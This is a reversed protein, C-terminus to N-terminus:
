PGEAIATQIAGIHVPAFGWRDVGVNFQKGNITWRTHVHGHLLWAAGDDPFPNRDFREDHYPYHCLRLTTAEPFVNDLILEMAMSTRAFGAKDIYWNPKFGDHNGLVLTKEGHLLRAIEATRTRNHFSFDGLVYVLDDPAVCMNWREILATDMDEVSAFPRDCHRIINRHGLHLDSTFWIVDTGRATM